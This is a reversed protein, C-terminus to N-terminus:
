FLCNLPFPIGPVDRCMVNLSITIRLQEGIMLPYPLAYVQISKDRYLQLNQTASQM